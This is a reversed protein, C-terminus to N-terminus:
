EEQISQGRCLIEMEQPSSSLSLHQNQVEGEGLRGRKELAPPMCFFSNGERRRSYMCQVSAACCSLPNRHSLFLPLPTTLLEKKTGEGGSRMEGERKVSAFPSFFMKILLALSVSLSPLSGWAEEGEGKGRTDGGGWWGLITCVTPLPLPFSPTLSFFGSVGSERLWFSFLYKLFTPRLLFFLGSLLLLCKKYVVFFTQKHSSTNYTHTYSPPARYLSQSKFRRPM